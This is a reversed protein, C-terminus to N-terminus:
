LGMRKVFDEPLWKKDPMHPDNLKGDDDFTWRESKIVFFKIGIDKALQEAEEVQHQNFKFVIFQWQNKKFGMEAGIKMALISDDFRAYKRYMHATDKLGDVGFIVEDVEPDMAGYLDRWWQESKGSGNTHLMLHLHEVKSNTRIYKVIDIFHPNYIADGISGCFNYNKFQKGDGVVKAIDEVNVEDMLVERRQGVNPGHTIFRSCKSCGLRCRHTIDIQIKNHGEFKNDKDYPNTITKAKVIKQKLDGDKIETFKESTSLDKPRRTYCKKVCRKPLKQIDEDTLVPKQLSAFFKRYLDTEFVSEVSDHNSLNTQPDRLWDVHNIPWENEKRGGEWKPANPEWGHDTFYCCPRVFKDHTLYYPRGQLCKPAWVKDNEIKPITRKVM